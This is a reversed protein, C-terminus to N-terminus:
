RKKAAQEKMCQRFSEMEEKCAAWRRNNDHYCDQMAYSEAACGSREITLEFEDVEDETEPTYPGENCDECLPNRVEEESNTTPDENSTSM